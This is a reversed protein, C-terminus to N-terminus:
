GIKRRIESVGIDVMFKDMKQGYSFRCHPCTVIGQGESYIKIYCEVCCNNACKPCTTNKKIEEYCVACDGYIGTEQAEIKKEIHRKIEAWNNQKLIPIVSIDNIKIRFIRSYQNKFFNFEHNPYRKIILKKILDCKRDYEIIEEDSVQEINM